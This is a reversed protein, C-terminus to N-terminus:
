GNPTTQYGVPDDSQWLMGVQPALKESISKSLFTEESGTYLLAYTSLSHGKNLIEIPVSTICDKGAMANKGAQYTGRSVPVGFRQRSFEPKGSMTIWSTNAVNDGQVAPLQLIQLGQFTQQGFHNSQFAKPVEGIQVLSLPTTLQKLRAKRHVRCSKSAQSREKRELENHKTEGGGRLAFQYNAKPPMPLSFHTFWALCDQKPPLAQAYPTADPNLSSVKVHNSNYPHNPTSAFCPVKVIPVDMEAPEVLLPLKLLLLMELQEKYFQEKVTALEAADEAEAIENDLSFM